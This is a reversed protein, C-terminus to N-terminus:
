LTYNCPEPADSGLVSQLLKVHTAEHESIQVFRERVSSDFGANEFDTENFQSLGRSYFTSELYELNLAFQLVQTDPLQLQSCSAYFANVYYYLTGTVATVNTSSPTSTSNSPTCRKVLNPAAFACQTAFAALLLSFTFM